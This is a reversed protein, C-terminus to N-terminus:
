SLLRPFLPWISNALPRHHHSTRRDSGTAQVKGSRFPSNPLDLVTNRISHRAMNLRFWRDVLGFVGQRLRHKARGLDQQPIGLAEFSLQAM